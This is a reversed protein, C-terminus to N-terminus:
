GLLARLDAWDPNADLCESITRDLELLLLWEKMTQILGPTVRIVRGHLLNPGWNAEVPLEAAAREPLSALLADIHAALEQAPEGGKRRLGASVRVPAFRLREFYNARTPGTTKRIMDDEQEAQMGEPKILSGTVFLGTVFLGTVLFGARPTSSPM